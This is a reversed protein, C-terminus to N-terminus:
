TTMSGGSTTVFFSFFTKIPSPPWENFLRAAIGTLTIPLLGHTTTAGGTVSAIENPTLERIGELQTAQTM